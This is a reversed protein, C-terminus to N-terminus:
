NSVEKNAGQTSDLIECLRKYSENTKLVNIIKDVNLIHQLEDVIPDLM